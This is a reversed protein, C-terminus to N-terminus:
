AKQETEPPLHEKAENLYKRITDEDLALGSLQLDSAIERATGSRGVKPDYGYGMIAMGLVLKLLSDRERPELLKELEYSRASELYAIRASLEANRTELEATHESKQRLTEQEERMKAVFSTHERNLAVHKRKEEWLEAIADDAIKKQEDYASKWDAIQHGLAKVAEVLNAPM